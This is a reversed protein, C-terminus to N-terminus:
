SVSSEVLGTMIGVEDVPPDNKFRGFQTLKIGGKVDRLGEQGYIQYCKVWRRVSDAACGLEESILGLSFGEEEYLRVAKLRFSYPYERRRPGGHPARRKSKVRSSRRKRCRKIIKEDM